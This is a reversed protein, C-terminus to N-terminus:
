GGGIPPFVGVREGGQLLFDANEKAGDIFILKVENKPIGLRDLVLSLPTGPEVPYRYAADAPLYKKLSAFLRIDITAPM